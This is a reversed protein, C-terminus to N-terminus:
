HMSPAAIMGRADQIEQHYRFVRALQTDPTFAKIADAIQAPDMADADIADRVDILRQALAEAMDDATGARALLYGSIGHHIVPELQPLHMAVVPRGVALMELVFRPMGEFESTLIGVHSSALTAAM